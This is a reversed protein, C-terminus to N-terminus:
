QLQHLSPLDHLRAIAMMQWASLNSKAQPVAPAPKNQLHTHSWHMQTPVSTKWMQCCEGACSIMTAAGSSDGMMSVKYSIPGTACTLKAPAWAPSSYHNRAYILDGPFFGNPANRTYTIPWQDLARNPDLRDLLTTLKHGM